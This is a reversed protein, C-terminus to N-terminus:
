QPKRLAQQLQLVKFLPLPLTVAVTFEAPNVGTLLVNRIFASIVGGLVCRMTKKQQQKKGRKEWLGGLDLSGM